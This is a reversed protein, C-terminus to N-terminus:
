TNGRQDEMIADDTEEGDGEMVNDPPVETVIFSHSEPLDIIEQPTAMHGRSVDSGYVHDEVGLGASSSSETDEQPPTSVPLPDPIPTHYVCTTSYPLFVVPMSCQDDGCRSVGCGRFLVQNPDHLIHKSCYKSLPISKEGCKWSGESYVCKVCGISQSPKYNAGETVQLRRQTQHHHLLAHTGLHRHYKVMAKLQDYATREEATTKPQNHISVMSEKEVRVAQIYKRRGERLIHSLRKYEGVYMSKLKQLKELYIRTIEETTFVQAHELPDTDSDASDLESDADRRPLTDHPLNTVEEESDTDSAYELAASAQGVVSAPDPIANQGATHTDMQHHSLQALLTEPTELPRRKRAARQRVVLSQRSHEACYRGEKRDTVPAPRLCRKGTNTHIYNCQRFPASKDELIHRSCYEFGHLRALSCNYTSFSCQAEQSPRTLTRVTKVVRGSRISM